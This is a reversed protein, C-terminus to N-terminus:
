ITENSYDTTTAIATMLRTVQSEDDNSEDNLQGATFTTVSTTAIMAVTM